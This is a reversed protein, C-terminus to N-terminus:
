SERIVIIVNFSSFLTTVNETPLLRSSTSQSASTSVNLSSVHLQLVCSFPCRWVQWRWGHGWGDEAEPESELKQTLPAWTERLIQDVELGSRSDCTTLELQASHTSHARILYQRLDNPHQGRWFCPFPSSLYASSPPQLPKIM